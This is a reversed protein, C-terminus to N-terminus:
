EATAQLESEKFYREHQNGDADEYSVRVTVEGSEQDISFGDVTGQIPPPLIQTVKKGKAFM